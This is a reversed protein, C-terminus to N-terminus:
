VYNRYLFLGWSLIHTKAMLPGCRITVCSTGGPGSPGAHGPGPVQVRRGPGSDAKEPVPTSLTVHLRQKHGPM